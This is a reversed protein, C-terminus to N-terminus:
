KGLGVNFGRKRWDNAIKNLQVADTNNLCVLLVGNVSKSRSFLLTLASNIMEQSMLKVPRRIECEGNSCKNKYIGYKRLVIDLEDSNGSYPNYPVNM